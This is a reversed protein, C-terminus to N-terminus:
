LLAHGYRLSLRVQARNGRVQAALIGVAVGPVANVDSTGYLIEGVIRPLENQQQHPRGNKNEQERTGIDRIKLQRTTRSALLLDSYTRGKTRAVPLHSTLQYDFAKQQRKKAARTSQKQRRPSVIKHAAVNGRGNKLVNRSELMQLDVPSDEQESQQHGEHGADDRAKRGHPM